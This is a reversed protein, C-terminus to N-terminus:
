QRKSEYEFLKTVEAESIKRRVKRIIEDMSRNYFEKFSEAGSYHENWYKNIVGRLVQSKSKGKEDIGVKLDKMADEVEAKIEDTSFAVFGHKGIANLVEIKSVTSVEKVVFILKTGTKM